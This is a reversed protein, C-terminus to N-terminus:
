TQSGETQSTEIHMRSRARYSRQARRRLLFRWVETTQEILQPTYICRKKQAPPQSHQRYRGLMNDDSLKRKTM